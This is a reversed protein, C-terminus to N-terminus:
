RIIGALPVNSHCPGAPSGQPAVLRCDSLVFKGVDKDVGAVDAGMLALSMSTYGTGIGLDLVPQGRFHGHPLHTQLYEVLAPGAMWMTVGTSRHGAEWRQEVILPTPESWVLRQPLAICDNDLYDDACALMRLDHIVAKAARLHAPILSRLATTPNASTLTLFLGTAAAARHDCVMRARSVLRRPSNDIRLMWVGSCVFNVGSTGFM